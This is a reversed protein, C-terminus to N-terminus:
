WCCRPPWKPNCTGGDNEAIRPRRNSRADTPLRGRNPQKGSNRCSLYPLAGTRTKMRAGKKQEIAVLLLPMRRNSRSGLAVIPTTQLSPLSEEKRAGEETRNKQRSFLCEHRSVALELNLWSRWRWGMRIGLCFEKRQIERWRERAIEQECFGPLLRRLLSSRGGARVVWAFRAEERERERARENTLELLPDFGRLRERDRGRSAFALLDKTRTECRCFLRRRGQSFLDTHRSGDNVSGVATVCILSLESVSKMVSYTTVLHYRAGSSKNFEETIFCYENKWKCVKAFVSSKISKLVTNLCNCHGGLRRENREKWIAYISCCTILKYLRLMSDPPQLDELWDFFQVVTPRLMLTAAQPILRVIINFSFPCEFFLHTSSEHDSNCLPCIPDIFINRHSLAKATKFGGVVCLWGYVSFRLSSGKFWLHKAWMCSPHEDYFAKTFTGFQGVNNNDWLLCPKDDDFIPTSVIQNAICHDLGQPLIWQNVNIFEGVKADPPELSGLFFAIPAAPSIRFKFHPKASQATICVARWFKSAYAPPPRWPSTYRVFLWRGLPSNTNYTRSILSCNFGFQLAAPSYLGLGGCLKPSCVKDWSIMHLKHSTSVDGFFLFKASLKRITKLITKPLIAGRIWYALSNLITFKLFQLIVGTVMWDLGATKSFSATFRKTITGLYFFLPVTIRARLLKFLASPTLFLPLGTSMSWFGIWNSIFLIILVNISGLTLVDLLNSIWPRSQAIPIGGVKESAYRCCNFDGMLIWPSNPILNLNRIDMWLSSREVASNSAYIVSIHFSQNNALTIKGAIMQSSIFYPSFNLRSSNWKLWIRGSQSLHFNNCSEESPFITHNLAFFPDQLASINIRNELICLMDLNFSSALRKCCIVKDPRNFGRINWSAKPGANKVGESIYTACELTSPNEQSLLIDYKNPSTISPAAIAEQLTADDLAKLSDPNSTLHSPSHPQFHLPLGLSNTQPSRNKNPSNTPRNSIPPGPTSSSARGRPNRARPNRSLSRGRTTVDSPLEKPDTSTDPKKPCVNSSHMFSKCHACPNPRWEYQVKLSVIDGDLSIMIEEPYTAECDVQVCVRAYTLRSKQSTLSDAALPVGVKSAIRSIGESNWCALPLDHIKIWIPLSTLNERRPKFKPHWKQFIFPRGLLFWVGRSWITDFDEACSFRFLFFGDSLSILQFSGKLPWSKKAAAHLAEYYPRRGVSYGVLCLKWDEAGRSLKDVSFPIIDPESPFFSLNLKSPSLDSPAFLNTWARPQSAEGVAHPALSPFVSLSPLQPPPSPPSSSSPPGGAMGSPPSSTPPLLHRSPALLLFGKLIEMQYG